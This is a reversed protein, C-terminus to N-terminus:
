FIFFPVSSTSALFVALCGRTLAAEAMLRETTDISDSHCLVCHAPGNVLYEGRRIVEPDTSRHIAPLPADWVRDWTRAIYVALGAISLTVVGATAALALWIKKKM